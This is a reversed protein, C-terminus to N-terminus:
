KEILKAFEGRAIFESQLKKKVVEKEFLSWFAYEGIEALKHDITSFNLLYSYDFNDQGIVPIDIGMKRQQVLVGAAVQDGNAFFVDLNANRKAFTKVADAGDDM